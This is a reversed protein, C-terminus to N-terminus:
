NRRFVITDRSVVPLRYGGTDVTVGPHAQSFSYVSEPSFGSQYTFVKRLHPWSSLVEIQEERIETGTLNLIQVKSLASLHQLGGPPLICGSLNLDTVGIFQVIEDLHTDELHHGSLNMWVVHHKLPLAKRLMSVSLEPVNILSMELYNTNMGVRQVLMGEEQLSTILAEDPKGIEELPILPHTFLKDAAVLEDHWLDIASRDALHFVTSQFDGGERIWSALVEIELKNLQTKGRPPMHLDDDLPLTLVHYLKSDDLDNSILPDGSEGGRNIWETGDLRLEGKQKRDGHCSYCRADLIPVIIDQYVVASDLNDIAFEVKTAAYPDYGFINQWSVPMGEWLYDGGHTLVGGRHGTLVVLIATAGCAIWPVYAAVSWKLEILYWFITVVALVIGSWKHTDLEDAPYSSVSSLLWGTVCAIIAAITSLGLTVKFAPKYIPVSSRTDLVKFLIALVLFGIPLHVVLPHFRGFFLELDFM